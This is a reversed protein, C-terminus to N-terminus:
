YPERQPSFPAAPQAEGMLASLAVWVGWGGPRLSTPPFPDCTHKAPESGIPFPAPPHIGDTPHKDLAQLPETQIEARWMCLPACGYDLVPSCFHTLVDSLTQKGWLSGCM